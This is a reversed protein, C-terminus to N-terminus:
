TALYNPITIQKELMFSTILTKLDALFSVPSYVKEDFADYISKLMEIDRVVFTQRMMCILLASDFNKSEM